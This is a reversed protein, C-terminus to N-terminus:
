LIGLIEVVASAATIFAFVMYLIARKKNDYIKYNNIAMIFLMLSLVVYLAAMIGDIFFTMVGVIILVIGLIVQVIELAKLKRHARIEIVDVNNM